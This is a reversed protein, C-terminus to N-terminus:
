NATGPIIQNLNFVVDFVVSDSQVANTLQSNETSWEMTIEVSKGPPIVVEGANNKWFTQYQQAQDNSLNSSFVVRPDQNNEQLSITTEILSGLEGLGSGPNGCSSDVLAEPENCDNELNQLNTLEFSLKGPLSGINNVTWTKGGSVINQSGLGNVQISEAQQNGPGTVTLDLTGVVFTSEESTERDIFLAQTAMFGIVGVLSLLFLSKLLGVKELVKQM